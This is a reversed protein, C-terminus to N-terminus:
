HQGPSSHWLRVELRHHEARLNSVKTGVEFNPRHFRDRESGDCGPGIKKANVTM